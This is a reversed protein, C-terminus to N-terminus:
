EIGLASFLGEYGNESLRKGSFAFYTADARVGLGEVIQNMVYFLTCITVADHLALEDWGADPVARADGPTAWSLELTLRQLYRLLVRLRDSIPAANLTEVIVGLLEPEVGFRAAMESHVGHCYDCANLGSVYAAILEWGGTTLPSAKRMAQENLSLLPMVTHPFMKFVDGCAADEYPSPLFAM